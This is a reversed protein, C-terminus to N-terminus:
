KGVCFKSFINNLVDEPTAIGIIEGLFDVAKRLDLAVFEDSMKDNLSQISDNLGDLARQLATKHRLNSVVIASESPDHNQFAMRKLLEKLMVIGEGTKCSIFIKEHTIKQISENIEQLKKDNKNFVYIVSSTLPMLNEIKQYL